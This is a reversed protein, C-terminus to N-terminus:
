QRRGMWAELPWRRTSNAAAVAALLWLGLSLGMVGLTGPQWGLGAGSLVLVCLLSCALYLSLSRQGLPALKATWVMRGESWAQAFAVVLVASTPLGFLPTAADLWLTADDPDNANVVMAGAYLLNLLLLPLLWRGVLTKRWGKWRVHTLLRLRAAVIGALMCLAVVPLSVVISPLSATVFAWLNMQVLESWSQAAAFGPEDAGPAPVFAGIATMLLSLGLALAGLLKIRRRLVPWPAHVVGIVVFGCLAYLTLIDGFYLLLGHLLGLLVLQWQRRRARGLAASSRDNMAQAMGWGFLFALVPYAKGQLLWAQGAQVVWALIDDSPTARGLVPGMPAVGYGAANVVVVGLLALARLVDPLPHRQSPKV